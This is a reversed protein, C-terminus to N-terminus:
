VFLFMLLDLGQVLEEVRGDSVRLQVFLDSIEGLPVCFRLRQVFNKILIMHASVLENEADKIQRMAPLVLVIEVIVGSGGDERHAGTPGFKLERLLDLHKCNEAGLIALDLIKHGLINVFCSVADDQMYVNELHQKILLALIHLYQSHNKRHM